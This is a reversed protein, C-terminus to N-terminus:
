YLGWIEMRCGDLGKKIFSFMINFKSRELQSNIKLRMSISIHTRM